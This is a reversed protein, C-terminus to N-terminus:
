KPPVVFFSVRRNLSIDVDGFPYRGGAGTLVLRRRDVGYYTVLFHATAEARRASLPRLSGTEEKSTKEVPNAHGDILIRYDPNELLLQAAKIFAQSNRIAMDPGVEKLDASNAPFVIFLPEDSNGLIQSFVLPAAFIVMVELGAAKKKSIM